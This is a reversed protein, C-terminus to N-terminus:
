WPRHTGLGVGVGGIPDNAGDFHYLFAVKAKKGNALHVTFVGINNKINSRSSNVATTQFQVRVAPAREVAVQSLAREVNQTRAALAGSHSVNLARSSSYRAM